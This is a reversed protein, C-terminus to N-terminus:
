TVEEQVEDHAFMCYVTLKKNIVDLRAYGYVPAEVEYAALEEKGLYSFGDAGTIGSYDYVGQAQMLGYPLATLEAGVKDSVYSLDTKRSVKKLSVSITYDTQLAEGWQLPKWVIKSYNLIEGNVGFKIAYGDYFTCEVYDYKSSDEQNATFSVRMEASHLQTNNDKYVYYSNGNNNIVFYLKIGREELLNTQATYNTLEYTGVLNRMKVGRIIYCGTAFIASCVLVMALAVSAFLKTIKRNRNM